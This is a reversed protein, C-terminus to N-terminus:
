QTIHMACMRGDMRNHNNMWIRFNLHTELWKQTQPTWYFLFCLFIFWCFSRVCIRDSEPERIVRTENSNFLCCCVFFFIHCSRLSFRYSFHVSYQCLTIISSQMTHRTSQPCHFRSVPCLHVQEVYIYKFWVLCTALADCTSTLTWLNFHNSLFFSFLFFHLDLTHCGRVAYMTNWRGGTIMRQRQKKKRIM